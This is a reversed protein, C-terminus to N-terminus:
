TIVSPLNNLKFKYFNNESCLCYYCLIFSFKILTYLIGIKPVSIMYFNVFLSVKSYVDPVWFHLPAAGIKFLLTSIILGAGVIALINEPMAEGTPNGNLTLMSLARTLGNISLEGTVGYLLSIGVVLIGSSLASLIFYKLGAGISSKNATNRVVEKTLSQQELTTTTSYVGEAGSALIYASLSYLEVALYLGILNETEIMLILGLTSFTVLLASEKLRVPKVIQVIIVTLVLILNEILLSFKSLGPIARAMQISDVLNTNSM